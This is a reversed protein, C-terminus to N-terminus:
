ARLHKKKMSAHKNSVQNLHNSFHEIELNLADHESLEYDLQSHIM